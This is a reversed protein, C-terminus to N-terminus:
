EGEEQPINNEPDAALWAQYEQWYTNAPNNPIVIYEGNDLILIIGDSGPQTYYNM